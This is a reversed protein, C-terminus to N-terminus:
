QQVVQVCISPPNLPMDALESFITCKPANQRIKHDSQTKFFEWFILM